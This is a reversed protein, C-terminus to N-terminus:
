AGSITEPEFEREVKVGAGIRTGNGGGQRFIIAAVAFLQAGCVAEVLHLVAVV